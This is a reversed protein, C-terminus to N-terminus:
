RCLENQPRQARHGLRTHALAMFGEHEAISKELRTINRVMDNAKLVVKFIPNLINYLIKLIYFFKLKNLM